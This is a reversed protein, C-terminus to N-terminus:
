LQTNTRPDLPRTAHRVNSYELLNLLQDLLTSLAFICGLSISFAIFLFNFDRNKLVEVYPRWYSINANENRMNNASVATPPLDPVGQFFFIFLSCAISCGMACVIMFFPM